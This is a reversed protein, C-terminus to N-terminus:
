IYIYSINIYIYPHLYSYLVFVLGGYVGFLKEVDMAADIHMNTIVNAGSTPLQQSSKLYILVAHIVLLMNGIM